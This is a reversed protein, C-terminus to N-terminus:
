VTAQTSRAPLYKWDSLDRNLMTELEEVEPRFLEYLRLTIDTPVATFKHGGGLVLTGLPSSKLAAVLHHLRRAKFWDAIANASRTRYYNRPHTLAESTHVRKMQSPTITFRPVGIFDVLADVYAQPQNQLDDYVTALVQEEGLAHQWARLHTAYRSSEVLEPDRLIAQEFSWPIMGYARKLRYLSLVRQVPNRFTCVVRANPITRAIRERAEASAFYTPAVEGRRRNGNSSQYYASYWPLGRHFHRDFFRTEKALNPLHAHQSLLEHLWSTGTRPPGIVFFSPLAPHHGDALMVAREAAAGNITTAWIRQM